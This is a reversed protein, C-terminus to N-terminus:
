KASCCARPSVRRRWSMGLDTLAGTERDHMANHCGACLSVLNWECWALEPYDEVPHAHHVVTADVALGYRRCQQCQYRDRRLIEKRKAAWRKSKYGDWAMKIGGERQGDPRQGQAIVELFVFFALAM